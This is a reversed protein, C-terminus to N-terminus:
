KCQNGEDTYLAIGSANRSGAAIRIDFARQSGEPRLCFNVETTSFGNTSNFVIGGDSSDGAKWYTSMVGNSPDRIVLLRGKLDDGDIGNISAGWKPTYEDVQDSAKANLNNLDDANVNGIVSYVKVEDGDGFVAMRGYLASEDSTGGNERTNRVNTAGSYVGRLFEMFSQVSDNNRQQSVSNQVGITVGFFLLASIALFISVEILTFGRKMNEM